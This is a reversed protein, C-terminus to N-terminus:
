TVVWSSSRAVCCLRVEARVINARACLGRARHIVAREDVDLEIHLEVPGLEVSVGGRGM